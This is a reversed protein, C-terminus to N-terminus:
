AGSMADRLERYIALTWDPLLEEPTRYVPRSDLYTEMTQGGLQHTWTHGRDSRSGQHRVALYSELAEIPLPVSGIRAQDLMFWIDEDRRVARFPRREWAWRSFMLTAGPVNAEVSRTVRWRALEFFLFPKLFAVTPRCADSWSEIVASMFNQLFAPGYWDDDDMKQFLSGHGQEVGRNLKTGLPTGPPLRVLRGGIRRVTSEDVPATEGDDVVILERRPYTQHQYCALAVRPLKPRDRTTLVVSVLPLQDAAV